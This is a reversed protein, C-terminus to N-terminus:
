PNMGGAKAWGGAQVLLGQAVTGLKDLCSRLGPIGPVAVVVAAGDM